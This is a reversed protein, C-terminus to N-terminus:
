EALSYKFPTEAFAMYIYTYGSANTGSNTTRLKFGNSLFDVMNTTSTDGSAGNEANALNPYLKLNTVNFTNRVADWVFWNEVNSSSKVMVYKPRFGTYVFTGDASGNGTYSGFASYNAVAAFAYCVYNKGNENVGANTGLTFVTSSPNTGNWIGGQAAATSELELHSGSGLAGVYVKWSYGSGNRAKIILMRPAVGLGHGVTAGASGNGTYTIVSFGSTTNARVQASISGSTNTVTSGGANWQWGVQAQSSQNSWTGIQFGNSNFATVGTLLTGEDGSDNSSLYKTAGRVADYLVNSMNTSGDRAKTWVFDPQFGGSNTIARSSTGDGTWLSVDMYKNAQTSATAGITPTPLNFTNLAVFGSPPTYAFGRQGFNASWSHSSGTNYSSTRYVWNVGTAITKQGQATGNKYFEITGTTVDIAVGIVDNTTYTAGYAAWSSGNFYNGTPAYLAFNSFGESVCGVYSSDGTVNSPTFEAYFKGSGFYITSESYYQKTDAVGTALLNAQSYTPTASFAGTSNLLPNFVAYNATTANTLTPVDTMTDYTVGSTFYNINIPTWNNGNGSADLAPNIIPM